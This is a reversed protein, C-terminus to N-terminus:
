WGKPYTGPSMYVSETEVVIGEDTELAEDSSMRATGTAVGEGKLSLVAVTDGDDFDQLKSVGPAALDAGHCVADVATDRILVEPLHDLMREYPLVCRRIEQERGDERWFVYGDKLDHLTVLDEEDFPGVGTRRLGQMHAGTALARGVDHCLTRVYTGAECRVRFLVYRDKVELVDLDHIERVRRRRKVAARLPPTQYIPGRFRDLVRDLDERDVDGHLQMLAVYEKDAHSLAEVAKTAAGTAVPLVGSVKPDLTGAHGARELELVGRVWASVQHSSPGVPKDLPVVGRTVLDEVDRNEPIEGHDPDTTAESRVLYNGTM